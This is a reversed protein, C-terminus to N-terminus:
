VSPTSPACTPTRSSPSSTLRQLRRFLPSPPARSVSILSSPRPSRVFSVSSRSSASSCILLSKTVVSRVFLSLEPDSVTLVSPDVLPPTRAPRPLELERALFRVELTAASPKSPVLRCMVFCLHFPAMNSNCPLLASLHTYTRPHTRWLVSWKGLWTLRELLLWWM